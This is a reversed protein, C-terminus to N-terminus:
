KQKEKSGSAGNSPNHKEKPKLNTNKNEKGRKKGKDEVNGYDRALLVQNKSAKLVGM